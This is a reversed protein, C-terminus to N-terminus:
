PGATAGKREANFADRESHYKIAREGKPTLRWKKRFPRVFGYKSLTGLAQRITDSTIEKKLAVSRQSQSTPFFTPAMSSQGPIPAGINQEALLESLWEAHTPSISMHDALFTVTWGSENVDHRAMERVADRVVKIKLGAITTARDLNM